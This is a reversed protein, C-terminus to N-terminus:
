KRATNAITGGEFFSFDTYSGPDMMNDSEVSDIPLREAEDLPTALRGPSPLYPTHARPPTAHFIEEAVVCPTIGCSISEAEDEVMNAFVAQEQEM